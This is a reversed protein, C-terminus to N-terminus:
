DGQDIQRTTRDQVRALTLGALLSTPGNSGSLARALTSHSRAGHRALAVVLAAVGDSGHRDFMDTAV